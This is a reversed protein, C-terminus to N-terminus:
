RTPTLHANTASRGIRTPGFMLMRRGEIANFLRLLREDEDPGAALVHAELAAEAEPWEEFTRGLLASVDALDRAKLEAGLADSRVLWEILQDAAEKHSDHLPSITEIKAVTDALKAILAANDGTRMRAPPEKHLKVKMLGALAELIVQRLALDFELYTAHPDGPVPRGVTGTFQMAGLASFQLTHFDVVDHDIAEGTAEEYTKLLVRLDSGLPEASDRMRVTAIDFLPDGIM